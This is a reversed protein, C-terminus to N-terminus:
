APLRSRLEVWIEGLMNQPTYTKLEVQGQFYGPESRTINYDIDVTKNGEFYHRREMELSDSINGRSYFLFLTKRDANMDLSRTVAKTGEKPYTGYKLQDSGPAIGVSYNEGVEDAGLVSINAEFTESNKEVAFEELIFPSIGILASALIVIVATRNV